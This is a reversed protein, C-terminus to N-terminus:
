KVLYGGDVPIIAGGLYDSASSALFIATGKMDNANGWRGAPIRDVIQQYRPNNRDTLATNMETDMYGPAIANVNVGRKMWDNSLAKTLQAIGGKSAAYAPVTQGGFFSLMSAVNIIKGYGQELMIKGAEQCLIFVSDLNVRIVEDWEFVPFEEASHRRQIGHATLLIDLKGGLKEVCEQFGSYVEERKDFNAKVGHCLFGRSRFNEAVAFSKDSTGVIVVEAGAEMLGEAMGYGLGRTGGTVVAKKGSLDFLSISMVTVREGATSAQTALVPEDVHSFILPARIGRESM